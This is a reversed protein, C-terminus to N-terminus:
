LQVDKQSRRALMIARRVLLRGATRFFPLRRKAAEQALWDVITEINEECWPVGVDDLFSARRQCSCAPSATIGILALLKKLETGVGFHRPYAEHSGDVAYIPIDGDREIVSVVCGMRSAPEYGRKLCTQEFVDQTCYILKEKM